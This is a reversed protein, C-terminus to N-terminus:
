VACLSSSFLKDPFFYRVRQSINEMRLLIYSVALIVQLTEHFTWLINWQRKRQETQTNRFQM